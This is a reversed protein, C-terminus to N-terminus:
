IGGRLSLGSLVSISTMNFTLRINHAHQTNVTYALTLPFDKTYGHLSAEMRSRCMLPGRPLLSTINYPLSSRRVTWLWCDVFVKVSFELCVLEEYLVRNRFFLINCYKLRNFQGDFGTLAWLETDNKRCKLSQLVTM